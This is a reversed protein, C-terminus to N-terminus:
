RSNSAKSTNPWSRFANSVDSTFSCSRFEDTYSISPLFCFMCAVAGEAAIFLWAMIYVKNYARQAYVTCHIRYAYYFFYAVVALLTFLPSLRYMTRKWPVLLDVDDNVNLTEIRYSANEHKEEFTNVHTSSAYESSYINKSPPELDPFNPTSPGLLTTSSATSQKYFHSQYPNRNSPSTPSSTLNSEMLNARSGAYDALSYMSTPSVPRSPDPTQYPSPQPTRFPDNPSMPM